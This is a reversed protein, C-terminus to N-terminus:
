TVDKRLQKAAESARQSTSEIAGQRLVTAAAGTANSRERNTEISRAQLTM